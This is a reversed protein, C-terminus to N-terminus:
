LKVLYKEALEKGWKKEFYNKYNNYREATKKENEGSRWSSKGYFHLLYSACNVDM